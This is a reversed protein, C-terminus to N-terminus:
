EATIPTEETVANERIAERPPQRIGFELKYHGTAETYKCGRLLMVWKQSNQYELTLNAPKTVLSQM